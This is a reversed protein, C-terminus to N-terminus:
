ARRLVAGALRTITELPFLRGARSTLVNVVGPTVYSRGKELARLGAAVVQEASLVGPTRASRRTGAVQQFETPTAGPCLAVVRVGAARHEAWLAQSFSLVFAKSAAYVAFDPIPQFAATSAVNVIGGAGRRRMAPLALHALELLATCNLQVMAVQRERPLTDFRGYLGFGANNVLLRVERGGATAQEWLPQAAGPRALDAAVVATQVGHAAGLEAALARLREERRASLALHMGRAALLRAFAEGIGSSAGTVLAWGGYSWRSM